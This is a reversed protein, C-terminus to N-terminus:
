LLGRGALNRMLAGIGFTWPPCETSLAVRNVLTGLAPTAIRVTDGLHHTFGSGPTGRDKVPAFMTGLYLCFGDPYQHHGGAAAAVLAEPSRSIRQMSSRGDLRFGDEGDVALALEARKVDELSFSGDFLRIFPGVAASANNDKAKGLLLASRGEIDRLNVDNGLTAGVIRGSSAVVLVIEPEPNNWSSAPLIGVDAGLGVASLPQAKTFVEADPGIGVELYQSWARRDILHAKLRLAEDSGPVLKSLDTGILRTLEARVGAARDPQGRAQEEIVRELLSEVFTVGCAKVAQLDVPALFWPLTEDRIRADSNAAIEAITGVPEGSAVAAVAAPDPAECLDRVTPIAMSTIDVVLDGRLVCVSPGIGPRLVRAVLTGATGDAPLVDASTFLPDAM